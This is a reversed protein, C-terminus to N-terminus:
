ILMGVGEGDFALAASFDDSTVHVQVVIEAGFIFIAAVDKKGALDQHAFIFTELADLDLQFEVGGTLQEFLM